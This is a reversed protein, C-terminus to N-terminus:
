KRKRELKSNIETNNLIYPIRTLEYELHTSVWSSSGLKKM